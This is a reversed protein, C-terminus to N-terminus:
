SLDRAAPNAQSNTKGLQVRVRLARVALFGALECLAVGIVYYPGEPAAWSFECECLECQWFDQSSALECGVWAHPVGPLLVCIPCRYRREHHSAARPPPPAQLQLSRPQRRAANNTRTFFVLPRILPGFHLGVCFVFAAGPALPFRTPTLGRAHFGSENPSSCRKSRRIVRRGGCVGM